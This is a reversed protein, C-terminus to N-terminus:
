GKPQVSVVRVPVENGRIKIQGATIVLEGVSLGETIEVVARGELQSRLGTKVVVRSAKGDTVRFVSLRGQATVLAEEPIVLASQRSELVLGVRVFMGPKLRKSADKLEARILLSRGAADVAVDIASVRAPFEQGPYADTKLMVQQGAALRGLIREPVRFDVKMSRTDELNVLAEGEKVYDGVSIQRIGIVGDFPAKLSMKELNALALALRAQAIQESAKADDLAAASLFKKEFLEETRKLKATALELEARAQSAQAQQIASDFVVLPSGAKVAAGETFLIKSIRGALESKLLVSEASRLTGVATLVDELSTQRVPLAEVAIPGAAPKSSVERENLVVGLYAALGLGAGVLIITAVRKRSLM